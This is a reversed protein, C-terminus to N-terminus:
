QVATAHNSLDGDPEMDREAVEEEESEVEIAKKKKAAQAAKPDKKGKYSKNNRQLNVMFDYQSKEQDMLMRM